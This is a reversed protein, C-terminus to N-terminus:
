KHCSVDLFNIGMTAARGDEVKHKEGTGACHHTFQHSTASYCLSGTQCEHLDLPTSHPCTYIIIALKCQQVASVLVVNYFYFIFM